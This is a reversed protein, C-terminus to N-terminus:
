ILFYVFMGGTVQLFITHSICKGIANSVVVRYYQQDNFKANRVLLFPSCPGSSSGFYKDGDTDISHFTTGDLSNQWEVKDPPPYGSVNCDFRTDSGFIVKLNTTPLIEASPIDIFFHM